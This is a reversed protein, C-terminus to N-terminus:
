YGCPVDGCIMKTIVSMNEIVDEALPDIEVAKAGIEEAIARVTSPSFQRQYFITKIKNTKAENVLLQLKDATPEKGEHEIAIQELGYDRAYYTLAPHYIFFGKAGCKALSEAINNDLSDLRQTFCKYNVHYKVSDPYLLAIRGMVTAAMRKLNRASNWIHPDSGAHSHPKSHEDHNHGGNIIEIGKSLEIFRERDTQAAMKEILVREFDILGTTFVLRADYVAAVQSPAPEFTEPSAGAPVLVTVAFDNGTINEIINKLPLISVTLTNEDKESAKEVCGLCCCMCGITALAFLKTRSGIMMDQIKIKESSRSLLSVQINEIEISLM